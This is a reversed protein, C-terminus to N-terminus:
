RPADIDRGTIIIEGVTPRPIFGFQSTDHRVEVTFGNDRLQEAVDEVSSDMVSAMTPEQSANTAYFPNAKDTFTYIHNEIDRYLSKGIYDYVSKKKPSFFTYLAYFEDDRSRNEHVGTEHRRNVHHGLGKPDANWEKNKESLNLSM